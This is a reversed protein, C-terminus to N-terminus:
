SQAPTHPQSMHSFARQMHEVFAEPAAPTIVIRRGPFTLVVSRSLDTAFLRYRGLDSNKYLGTFAFLGGNGFIRMSKKCIGPEFAVGQLGNISFETGWLPRQIVLSSASVAYGTVMFLLSLAMSAPPILAIGVGVYHTFGAPVPVARYVAVGVGLLLAMGLGSTIKLARPWPAVPFHRVAM